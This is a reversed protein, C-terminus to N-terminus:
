LTDRSYKIYEEEEEARIKATKDCVLEPHKEQLKRRCRVISALSPIGLEAHHLCLEEFTLKDTHVYNKLVENYLVYDDERTRENNTLATKVLPEIISIKAM